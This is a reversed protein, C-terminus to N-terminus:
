RLFWVGMTELYQSAMVLFGSDRPFPHGPLPPWYDTEDGIVQDQIPHRQETSGQGGPAALGCVPDPGSLM